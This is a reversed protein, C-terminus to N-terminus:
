MKCYELVRCKIKINICNFQDKLVTKMSLQVLPLFLFFHSQINYRVRSFSKYQAPNFNLRSNTYINLIQESVYVNSKFILSGGWWMGSGRFAACSMTNLHDYIAVCSM